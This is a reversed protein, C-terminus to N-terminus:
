IENKIINLVVVFDNKPKQSITKSIDNVVSVRSSLTLIKSFEIFYLVHTYMCKFVLYILYLFCFLAADILYLYTVLEESFM